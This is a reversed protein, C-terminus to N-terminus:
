PDDAWIRMEESKALYTHHEFHCSWSPVNSRKMGAFYHFHQVHSYILVIRGEDFPVFYHWAITDHSACTIYHRVRNIIILYSRIKLCKLGGCKFGIDLSAAVLWYLWGCITSRHHLSVEVCLIQWLFARSEVALYIRSLSHQRLHKKWRIKIGAWTWKHMNRLQPRSLRLMQEMSLMSRKVTRSITFRPFQDLVKANWSNQLTQAPM